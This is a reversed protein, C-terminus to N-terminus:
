RVELHVRKGARALMAVLADLTFKGVKHNVVDSVRPRTVHLLEAAAAQTLREHKMWGAIEDMLQKKLRKAEDIRADTRALLRRAEGPPFGLDSFVNGDGRTRHRSRTDVKM